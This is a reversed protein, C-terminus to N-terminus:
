DGPTVLRRAMYLDLPDDIDFAELKSVPHIISDPARRSGHAIFSGRTFISFAGSELYAKKCHQSNQEEAICSLGGTTGESYWYTEHVMLGALVNRGMAQHKHIALGLTLSSVFPCTPLLIIVTSAPDTRYTKHIWDGVLEDLTVDDGCMEKDRLDISIRRRSEIGIEADGIARAVKSTGSDVSVVVEDAVSLGLLVTRVVLPEGRLMVTNKNPIRKSGDRAPIFAQIM